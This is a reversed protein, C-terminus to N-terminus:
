AAAMRARLDDMLQDFSHAFAAVGDVRLQETVADMSIGLEGLRATLRHAQDLDTDITRAVVGHDKFADLTAPPVTNVTDPGILNDVYYTDPYRPDKTSTSAWLPRQVRAGSGALKRFRPQAFIEAFAAYAIRTNAIAAQGFLSEAEKQGAEVRAALLKDVASDVRSVFFSAVSAVSAPDGGASVLDELGQLYAETVRRYVECSFILTVNVNVGAAITARVAPLGEDTAPIKIMVNLRNITRFLRQAESITVRTDYALGPDVELSVYGDRRASGDYVPRLIDAAARIDDVVLTEYVQADSKGDAILGALAEDYDDSGSIAKQFITPNSTMGVVGDAVFKDLEGSAIMGRRINDYWLSQGADALARIREHM